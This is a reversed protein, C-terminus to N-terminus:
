DLSDLGFGALAMSRAQVAAFALVLMGVINWPLTAPKWSHEMLLRAHRSRDADGDFSWNCLQARSGSELPTGTRRITPDTPKLRLWCSKPRSPRLAAANAVVIVAWWVAGVVGLLVIIRGSTLVTAVLFFPVVVIGGLVISGVVHRRRQLGRIWRAFGTRELSRGEPCGDEVM